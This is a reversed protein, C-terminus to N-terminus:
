DEIVGLVDAERMVILKEDNLTIESGCYAEFIIKDGVKVTLPYLKNNITKGEGVAVVEGTSDDKNNPLIFGGQTTTETKTIKRVLIRDHLPTM